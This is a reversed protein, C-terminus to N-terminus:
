TGHSIFTVFNPWSFSFKLAQQKRSLEPSFGVYSHPTQFHIKTFTVFGITKSTMLFFICKDLITLNINAQYLLM